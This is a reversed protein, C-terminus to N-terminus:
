DISCEGDFTASKSRGGPKKHILGETIEPGSKIHWEGNKTTTGLSGSKERSM